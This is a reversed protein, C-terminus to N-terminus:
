RSMAKVGSEFGHEPTSIASPAWGGREFFRMWAAHDMGECGNWVPRSQGSCWAALEDFSACPPSIPTGESVTEYLQYHTRDRERWRPRYDYFYPEKEDSKDRSFRVEHNPEVIGFVAPWYGIARKTAHTIREWWWERMAEAWSQHMHIPQWRQHCFRDRQEPEYAIRWREDRAKYDDKTPHKWDKPVRLLEMGM